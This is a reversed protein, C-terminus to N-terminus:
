CFCSLIKWKECNFHMLSKLTRLVHCPYYDSDKSSNNKLLLKWNRFLNQCTKLVKDAPLEITCHNHRSQKYRLYIIYKM